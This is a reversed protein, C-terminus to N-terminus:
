QKTWPERDEPIFHEDRIHLQDGQVTIILGGIPVIVGSEGIRHGFGTSVQWPRMYIARPKTGVGTDNLEGHAHARLIVDPVDHGVRVKRLATYAAQRGPAGKETWPLRGVTRPHHAIDFLLEEVMLPLHYWSWTDLETDREAGLRQALAEELWCGTGTHAPTGRVIFLHDALSRPRQYVTEALDLIISPDHTVVEFTAHVPDDLADGVVTVYLDYGTEKKVHEVKDWFENWCALRWKGGVTAQWTGSGGLSVTTPNVGVTSNSHVDAVAVVISGSM